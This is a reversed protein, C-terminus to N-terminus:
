NKLEDILIRVSYFIVVFISEIDGAIEHSTKSFIYEDETFFNYNIFKKNLNNIKELKEVNTMEIRSIGTVCEINENSNNFLISVSVEENEIEDFFSIITSTKLKNIELQEIDIGNNKLYDIFKDILM